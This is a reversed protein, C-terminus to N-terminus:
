IAFRLINLNGGRFSTCLSDLFVMNEPVILTRRISSFLLLRLPAVCGIVVFVVVVFLSSVFLWYVAIFQVVSLRNQMSNLHKCTNIRTYPRLAFRFHLLIISYISLFTCYKLAVNDSILPLIIVIIIIIERHAEM